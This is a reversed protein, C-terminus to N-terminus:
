LSKVYYPFRWAKRSIDCEGRFRKKRSFHKIRVIDKKRGQQMLRCTVKIRLGTILSPCTRREKIENMMRLRGMQKYKKVIM